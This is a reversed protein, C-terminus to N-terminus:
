QNANGCQARLWKTIALKQSDDDSETVLSTVSKTGRTPDILGVRYAPPNFICSPHPRTGRIAWIKRVLALRGGLIAARFAADIKAQDSHGNTDLAGRAIFANILFPHRHLRLANNIIQGDFPDPVLWIHGNVPAGLKLLGQIAHDDRVNRDFTARALLNAAAKTHFNFGEAKLHELAFPSFHVWQNARAVHDVTKEFDFLTDAHFQTATSAIRIIQHTQNGMTITLIPPAADPPPPRHARPLSWINSKRLREVLAAVDSSPVHYTHKGAVDVYHQGTYVVRGDGYIDIRYGPYAPLFGLYRELTIHVEHLPVDPLPIPQKPPLELEDIAISVIAPVLKGNQVFPTYRWTSVTDLLAQRKSNLAAKEGAFSELEHCVIHGMKDVRVILRLGWHRLKTGYPYDLDPVSFQQHQFGEQFTAAYANLQQRTCAATAMAPAAAALLALAMVYLLRKM